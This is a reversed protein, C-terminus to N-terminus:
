KKSTKFLKENKLKKQLIFFNDDYIVIRRPSNKMTRVTIQGFAITLMHNCEVVDRKYEVQKGHTKCLRIIYENAVYEAFRNRLTTHEIIERFQLNQIKTIFRMESVHINLHEIFGPTVGIYGFHTLEHLTDEKINQIDVEIVETFLSDTLTKAKQEREIDDVLKKYQTIITQVQTARETTLTNLELTTPYELINAIEIFLGLGHQQKNSIVEIQDERPELLRFLKPVSMVYESICDRCEQVMNFLSEETLNLNPNNLKQLITDVSVHFTFLTQGNDFPGNIHVHILDIFKYVIDLQNLRSQIFEYVIIPVVYRKGGDNVQEIFNQKIKSKIDPIKQGSSLIDEINDVTTSKVFRVPQIEEDFNM